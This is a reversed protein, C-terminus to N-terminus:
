RPPPGNRRALAGCGSVSGARTWSVITGTQNVTYQVECVVPDPPDDGPGSAAYYLKYDLVSRGDEQTHWTEPPGWQAVLDDVHHGAWLGFTDDYYTCSVIATLSLIPILQRM